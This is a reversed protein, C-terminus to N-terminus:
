DRDDGRATFRLEVFQAGVASSVCRLLRRVVRACPPKVHLAPLILATADTACAHLDQDFCGVRQRVGAACAMGDGVQGGFLSRCSMSSAYAIWSVSATAKPSMPPQFTPAGSLVAVGAKAGM